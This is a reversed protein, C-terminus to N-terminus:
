RKTDDFRNRADEIEDQHTFAWRGLAAVPERLSHGLASLEYVVKPPVADHVERIVLGDRELGRLTFTLMRQSIGHVARKIESFRRPGSALVMVVMVSWKDGIRALVSGAKRCGESGIVRRLDGDGDQGADHRDPLMLTGDQM